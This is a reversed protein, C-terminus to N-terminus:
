AKKELDLKRSVSLGGYCQCVPMMEIENINLHAPGELLWLVTNAIDEPLIAATDKYVAEVKADDGKFRVNSFETHSCLGPKIVTAKLASGAFDTRLNRTFQEVFAKTGGYVNGGTYPWSGATSGLNIIYGCNRKLMSPVLKHTINLLGTINTNVMTQWDKFDCNQVKDQGLALGANNVLVDIAHLEEPLRKFIESVSIESSVDLKLPYINSNECALAKLKDLRRAAAIVKYGHTALLKCIAAGFGASAGTVLVTQYNRM